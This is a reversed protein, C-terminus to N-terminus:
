PQKIKTIKKDVKWRLPLFKCDMHDLFHKRWLEVFEQLKDELLYSDVIKKAPNELATEREQYDERSFNADPFAELIKTKIRDIINASYLNDIFKKYIVLVIRKNNFVTPDGVLENKLKRAHVEYEEHHKVCLLLIDYSNRSKIEIPFFKRFERPIIHHRTLEGTAGCCVCVNDKSILNDDDDGLGQPEFLLKITHEGTLEALNRSLYWKARKEVCRFMLKGTPHYVEWNGYNQKSLTNRSMM